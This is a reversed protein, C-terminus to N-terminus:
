FCSVLMGNDDAYGAAGSSSLLVVVDPAVPKKSNGLAFHLPTRGRRDITTKSEPFAEALLKIVDTDAGCACAYHVPLWGFTDPWQVTDEAISLFVDVVDAPPANRCAFHLATMANEGRQEAAVRVEEASHTRLWERVPEWTAAAADRAEPSDNRPPQARACYLNLLQIEPIVSDEGSMLSEGLSEESMGPDLMPRGGNEYGDGNDYSDAM